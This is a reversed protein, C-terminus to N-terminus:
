PRSFPPRVKPVTAINGLGLAGFIRTRALALRTSLVQEQGVPVTTEFHFFLCRRVFGGVAIVHGTLGAAAHPEIAIWLRTDYSAPEEVHDDAVTELETDPFIHELRAEVECRQRSQLEDDTWTRLTISSHSPEHTAFLFNKGHDDIRWTKGDPLPLSVGFRSSVYRLWEPSPDSLDVIAAQKPPDPTHTTPTAPGCAVSAIVVALARLFTSTLGQHAV